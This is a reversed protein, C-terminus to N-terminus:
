FLVRRNVIRRALTDGGLLLVALNSFQQIPMFAGRRPHHRRPAGSLCVQLFDALLIPIGNNM